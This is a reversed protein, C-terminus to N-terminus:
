DRVPCNERGAKETTTPKQQRTMAQRHERVKDALNAFPGRQNREPAATRHHAMLPPQQRNRHQKQYSFTRAM